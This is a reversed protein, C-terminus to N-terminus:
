ITICCVISSTTLPIGVSQICMGLHSNHIQTHYIGTTYYPASQPKCTNEGDRNRWNTGAVDAHRGVLCGTVILDAEHTTCDDLEHLFIGISPPKDPLYICTYWMHLVGMQIPVGKALCYLMFHETNHTLKLSSVNNYLQFIFMMHVAVHICTFSLCTGYLYKGATCFIELEWEGLWATFPLYCWIYLRSYWEVTFTNSSGVDCTCHHPPNQVPTWTGYTQGDGPFQKRWFLSDFILRRM